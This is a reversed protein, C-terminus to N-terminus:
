QWRLKRPHLQHLLWWKMKSVNGEWCLRSPPMGLSILYCIQLWFYVLCIFLFSFCCSFCALFPPIVSPLFYPLFSGLFFFLVVVVFLLSPLLRLFLCILCILCVLACVVNAAWFCTPWGCAIYGASIHVYMYIYIHIRIHVGQSNLMSKVYISYLYCPHHNPFHIRKWFHTNQTDLRWIEPNTSRQSTTFRSNGTSIRTRFSMQFRLLSITPAM